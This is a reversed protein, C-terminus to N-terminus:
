QDGCLIEMISQSAVRNQDGWFGLVGFGWFGMFLFYM